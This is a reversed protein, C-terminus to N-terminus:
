VSKKKIYSKYYNFHWLMHFLSVIVFIIGSEVHWFLEFARGIFSIGYELRLVLLISLIGCVLFSILLVINWIKKHTIYSIKNFRSLFYSLLYLFVTVLVIIIFNYPSGIKLVNQEIVENNALPNATPAIIESDDCLGDKNTDIYAGCKGTCNIEGFRCVEEAFIIPLILIIAVFIAILLKKM